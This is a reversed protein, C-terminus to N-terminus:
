PPQAIFLWFQITSVRVFDHSFDVNLPFELIRFHLYQVMNEAMNQTGSIAISGNEVPAESKATGDSKQVASVISLTEVLRRFFPPAGPSSNIHSTEAHTHTHM